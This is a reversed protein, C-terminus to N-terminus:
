FVISQTELFEPLFAITTLESKDLYSSLEVPSYVCPAPAMAKNIVSFGEISVISLAHPIAVFLSFSKKLGLLVKLLFSKIFSIILLSFRFIVSLSKSSFNESDINQFLLLSIISTKM